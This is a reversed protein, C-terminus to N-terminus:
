PRSSLVSGDASTRICITKEGIAPTTMEAVSNAGNVEVVDGPKLRDFLEKVRPGDNPYDPHALLPGRFGTAPRM